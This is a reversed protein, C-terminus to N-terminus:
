DILSLLLKIETTTLYIEKGSINVRLNNKDLNFPGVAVESGGDPSLTRRLIVRIRASLERINFPKTLYDDAGTELGKIKQDTEGLATLMLIPIRKTKGNERLDKCVTVGDKGPMMVDLVVLDPKNTKALKLGDLGNAAELTEFGESTLRKVLLERLDPEDDVILVTPM